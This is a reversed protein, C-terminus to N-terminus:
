TLPCPPKRKAEQPSLPNSTLRVAISRIVISWIMISCIMISQISQPPERDAAWDEPYPFIRFLAAKTVAPHV